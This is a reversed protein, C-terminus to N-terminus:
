NCELSKWKCLQLYSRWRRFWNIVKCIVVQKQIMHEITTIIYDIKLTLISVLLVFIILLTLILYLNIPGWYILITGLGFKIIAQILLLDLLVLKMLIFQIFVGLNAHILVLFSGFSRLYKNTEIKIHKLKQAYEIYPKLITPM